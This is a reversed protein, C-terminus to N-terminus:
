VLQNIRRVWGEIRRVVESSARLAVHLLGNYVINRYKRNSKPNCKKYYVKLRDKSIDLQKLWFSVSREVNDDSNRHIYLSFIMREKKYGLYELWKIFVIVMRADTNGLKLNVGPRYEKDKGGEAWYLAIGLIFLDRESFSQIDRSSEQYIEETRKIRRERKAKAGRLRAQISKNTIRQIQRKALGVDRLWLSLTSKAVKIESLIESYTRGEKRLQVAKQRLDLYNNFM